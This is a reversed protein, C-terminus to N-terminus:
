HRPTYGIKTQSEPDIIVILPGLLSENNTRFIVAVIFSDENIKIDKNLFFFPISGDSDTVLYNGGNNNHYVGKLIDAEKWDMTITGREEEDLSEYATKRYNIEDDPSLIDSDHSCGISFVAILM